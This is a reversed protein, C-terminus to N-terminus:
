RSAVMLSTSRIRGTDGRSMGCTDRASVLHSGGPHPVDLDHASVPCPAAAESQTQKAANPFVGDGLTGPDDDVEPRHVVVLLLPVLRLLEIRTPQTIRMGEQALAHGPPHLLLPSARPSAQHQSTPDQEQGGPANM